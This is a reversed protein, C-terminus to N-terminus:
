KKKTPNRNEYTMLGVNNVGAQQLLIMMKIVKGYNVARDVKAYVERQQHNQKALQLAITIQQILNKSSVPQTPQKLINLFYNGQNDISVIMPTDQLPVLAKANVQPLNVNIGQILLPATIMFIVLLVLMVDIYPVVNIEALPRKRM